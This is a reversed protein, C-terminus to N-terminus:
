AVARTIKISGGTTADFIGRFPINVMVDDNKGGLKRAGSLFRAVPILFTYKKNATAGITFSIAAAGHALAAQYLEQTEFYCDISGTVDVPGVGFELSYLQGVIDRVRLNNKLALQLSKVKPQATLGAVSMNAVALTSDINTTTPNLYTAGAVIATDTAEQQGMLSMSGKVIARSAVTLSLEDIMVGAFRNYAKSAGLDTIEEFTFSKPTVGNVLANTTWSGFLAAELLADFTDPSWEYDYSGKVDQAVQLEDAVNRDPRIEDSVVTAKHTSLNGGTRRIKQWAPTAPTVGFVAEPVFSVTTKSTSGFPM